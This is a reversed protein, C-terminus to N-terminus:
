QTDKGTQITSANMFLRMCGASYFYHSAGGGRLVHPDEKVSVVMKWIPDVVQDAGITIEGGAASTMSIGLTRVEDM